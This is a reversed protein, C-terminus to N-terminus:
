VEMRELRVQALIMLVFCVALWGAVATLFQPGARYWPDYLDVFVPLRVEHWLRLWVVLGGYTMMAFIALGIGNRSNRALTTMTYTLSYYLLAITAFGAVLRLAENASEIGRLTTTRLLLLLFTVLVLTTMQAAGVAWSTWLLHRRSRPRTLLFEATGKEFEVGVGLAGLLFGAFPVLGLVVPLLADVSLRWVAHVERPKAAIWEFPDLAVYAAIAGVVLIAVLFNFFIRRTDRWCKWVYGHMASLAPM